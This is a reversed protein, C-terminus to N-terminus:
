PIQVMKPGRLFSLNKKYIKKRIYLAREFMKKYVFQFDILFQALLLEQRLIQRPQSKHLFNWYKEEM